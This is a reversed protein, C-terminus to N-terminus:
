PLRVQGHPAPPKNQAARGLADAEARTKARVNPTVLVVQGPMTPLNLIRFVNLVERESPLFKRM